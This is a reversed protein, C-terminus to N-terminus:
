GNKKRCARLAQRLGAAFRSRSSHSSRSGAGPPRSRLSPTTVCSDAPPSDEMRGIVMSTFKAFFASEAHAISPVPWTRHRCSGCRLVNAMHRCRPPSPLACCQARRKRCCPSRGRRATRGTHANFASGLPVFRTVSADFCVGAGGLAAHVQARDDTALRAHVM